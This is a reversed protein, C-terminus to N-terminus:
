LLIGGSEKALQCASVRVCQGPNVILFCGTVRLCNKPLPIAAAPAIDIPPANGTTFHAALGFYVVGAVFGIVIHAFTITIACREFVTNKSITVFLLYDQRSHHDRLRM